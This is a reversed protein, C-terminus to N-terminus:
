ALLDEKRLMEIFDKAAKEATATDIAYKQALADVVAEETTEKNLLEWIFAGTGNMRVVRGENETGVSLAVYSDAVKRLLYGDKIKM